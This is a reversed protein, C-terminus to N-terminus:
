VKNCTYNIVQLPARQVENNTTVQGHLFRKRVDYFFSHSIGLTALWLSQCVRIGCILYTTHVEETDVNKSTHANFYDLLWQRRGQKPMQSYYNHYLLIDAPAVGHKKFACNEVCGNMQWVAHFDWGTVFTLDSILVVQIM